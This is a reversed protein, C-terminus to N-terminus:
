FLLIYGTTTGVYRTLSLSGVLVALIAVAPLGYRGLPNILVRETLLNDTRGTRDLFGGITSISSPKVGPKQAIRRSVGVRLQGLYEDTAQAGQCETANQNTPVQQTSAM